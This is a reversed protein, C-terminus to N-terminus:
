ARDTATVAWAMGEGPDEVALHLSWGVDHGVPQWRVWRLSAAVTGLERPDVPWDDLVGVVAALAWWAGFRGVAAGRRRGHAGGSAGAWAMVALAEAPAVEAWGVRTPGLAAVAAEATAGVASVRVAGNSEVVWREVLARLASGVEPEDVAVAPPPSPLSRPSLPSVEPAPFEAAHPRYTAVAYAPEWPELALPLELVLPDVRQHDLIAEGRVVREHATLAATPTLPVHPALEDWTHTSAAVEALPGLAFRGGGDVLVAAAAPAPAELALRYDAQSAIPWLQRGSRSFAQRCADRLSALAEWDGAQCLRDVWRSLEDLDGTALAEGLSPRSM